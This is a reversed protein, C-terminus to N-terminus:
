LKRGKRQNSSHEDEEKEVATTERAPNKTTPSKAAITSLVNLLIFLLLNSFRKKM